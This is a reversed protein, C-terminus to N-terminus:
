NRCSMQKNRKFHVPNSGYVPMSKERFDLAKNREM